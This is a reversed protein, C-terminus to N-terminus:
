VLSEMIVPQTCDVRKKSKPCLCILGNVLHNAARRADACSAGHGILSFAVSAHGRWLIKGTEDSESLSHYVRMLYSKKVEEYEIMPVSYLESKDTAIMIGKQDDAVDIWGETAGLCSRASSFAGVPEQHGIKKGRVYFREEDLSGNVTAFHLFRQLFSQPNITVIGM